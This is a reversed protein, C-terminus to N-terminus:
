DSLFERFSWTRQQQWNGQRTRAKVTCRLVLMAALCFYISINSVADTPGNRDPIRFETCRYFM